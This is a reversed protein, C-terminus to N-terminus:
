RGLTQLLVGCMADAAADWSFTGARAPGDRALTSRLSADTTARVIAAALGEVSQPDAYVAANGCVERLSPIDSVVTPRGFLMAELPPLGFGEYLSPYVFADAHAYFRRLDADTVYGASLLGPPSADPITHSAFIRSPAGVVVLRHTPLLGNSKIRAWAALLRGLNKRPELSSVSLVYPDPLPSAAPEGADPSPIGVGSHVVSLKASDVVGHAVLERASAHTDTVVHAARRALRPLLFRYALAFRRDFWEPHAFTSADHMTVVQARVSLPGLNAPSWLLAGRITRMMRPLVLQEWAYVHGALRSQRVRVDIDLPRLRGTPALLVLELGNAALRPALARCMETAYRQVGTM